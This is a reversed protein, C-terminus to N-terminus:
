IVPNVLFEALNTARTDDLNLLLGRLSVFVVPWSSARDPTASRGKPLTWKRPLSRGETLNIQSAVRGGAENNEFGLRDAENSLVVGSAVDTNGIQSGWAVWQEYEPEEGVLSAYPGDPITLMKVHKSRCAWRPSPKAQFVPRFESDMPRAAESFLNTTYNKVPRYAGRAAGVHNMSTGNEMHLVQHLGMGQAPVM